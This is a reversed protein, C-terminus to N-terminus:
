GDFRRRRSNVAFLPLIFPRHAWPCILAHAYMEFAIVVLPPFLPFRIGTFTASLAGVLLFTSFFIVGHNIM